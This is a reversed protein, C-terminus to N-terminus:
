NVEIRKKKLIRTLAIHDMERFEWTLTMEELYYVVRHTVTLRYIQCLAPSAKVHFNKEQDSFVTFSFEYAFIADNHIM